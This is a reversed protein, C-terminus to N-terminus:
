TCRTLHAASSTWLTHTADADQVRCTATRLNGMHMTQTSEVKPKVVGPGAAAVAVPDLTAQPAPPAAACPEPHAPLCGRLCCVVSGVCSLRRRRLPLLHRHQQQLLARWAPAAPTGHLHQSQRCQSSEVHIDYVVIAPM